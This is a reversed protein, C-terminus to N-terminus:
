EAYAANHTALCDVQQFVVSLAASHQSVPSYRCPLVMGIVSVGEDSPLRPPDTRKQEQM